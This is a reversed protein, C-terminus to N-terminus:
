GRQRTSLGNAEDTCLGRRTEEVGGHFRNCSVENNHADTVTWTVTTTGKNFVADAKSWRSNIKDALLIAEDLYEIAEKPNESSLFYGVEILLKLKQKGESKHILGKLSDVQTQSQISNFLFLFGLIIPFIKIKSRIM